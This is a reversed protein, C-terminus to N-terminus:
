AASPSRCDKRDIIGETSFDKVECAFRTGYNSTDFRTVPGAGSQGEILRQWFVSVNNGLPSVIGAGTVFVRRGNDSM